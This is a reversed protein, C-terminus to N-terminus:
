EGPTGPDDRNRRDLTPSEVAASEMQELLHQRQEKLMDMQAYYWVLEVAAQEWIDLDSLQRKIFADRKLIEDFTM